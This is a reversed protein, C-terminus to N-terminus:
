TSRSHKLHIVKLVKNHLDTQLIIISYALTVAVSPSKLGAGADKFYKDAFSDLCREICQSEGVVRVSSMFLRM